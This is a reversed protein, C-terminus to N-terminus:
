LIVDDQDISTRDVDILRVSNPGYSIVTDGRSNVISLQGFARLGGVGSFDLIDEGPTFNKLQDDGWRGAFVARDIGAGFVFFDDGGGGNVIDNGDGAFMRDGGGGGNLRDNGAQGKLVDNHAGGILVDDGGAGAAVDHDRGGILRDNGGHGLLVDKGDDGRLVDNGANGSLRDNGGFGVVFDDGDNGIIVNRVNNGYIFDGASGGSANEITVGNAITYGGYIGDASSLRGGAYMDGSRLSAARLDITSMDDGDYRMWDSGGADWIAQYFTGGDNTEPLRYVDNGKHYNNNAGYIQQIAYIDFAMPTGSWGYGPTVDPDLNDAVRGDNYSMVTYLGQNHGFRGTDFAGDVGPFVGSGGERGHSHALGLGHGVEHLITTFGYGGQQLGGTTNSFDWGTGEYNFRGEQRGGSPFEFDALIGGGIISSDVNILYFDAAAADATQVFSLNAVKSWQSLAVTFQAKEYANWLFQEDSFHYAVTNSSLRFGSDLADLYVNAM